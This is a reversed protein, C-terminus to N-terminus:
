RRAQTKEVSTVCAASLEEPWVYLIAENLKYYFLDAVDKIYLFQNLVHKLM